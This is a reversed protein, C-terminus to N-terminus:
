SGIQELRLVFAETRYNGLTLVECEQLNWRKIIHDFEIPILVLSAHDRKLRNQTVPHNAPAINPRLGTFSEPVDTVKSHANM